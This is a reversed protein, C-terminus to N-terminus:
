NCLDANLIKELDSESWQDVWCLNTSLTTDIEAKKPLIYPLLGTLLRVKDAPRLENVDIAQFLDSAINQILEKVETTIKNKSNKPRGNLNRTGKFEGM